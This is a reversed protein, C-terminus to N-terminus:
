YPESECGGFGYDNGLNNIWWPDSINCLIKKGSSSNRLTYFYRNPYSPDGGVYCWGWGTTSSTNLTPWTASSGACIEGGASSNSGAQGSDSDSGPFNTVINQGRLNCEMAAPMVSEAVQLAATARAKDRYGMMSTIMVGALIGIIAIAVMLEILTFGTKAKNTKM